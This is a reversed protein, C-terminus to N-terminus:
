KNGGQAKKGLFARIREQTDALCLAENLKEQLYELAQTFPLAVAQYYAEKGLKLILPSKQKIEEALAAAAGDLEKAPVVRNVLGLQQAEQANIIRGTFALEFFKKKSLHKLLHPMIMLPFLGVNIEPLGFKAEESAIALDCAAVLGLGGGLALGNVAAIIPKGTRFARMLTTFNKLLKENPSKGVFESLDAGACFARGAGSLLVVAIREDRGAEELAATLEEMARLNLANNVEPRNILIRAIGDKIECCIEQKNIM